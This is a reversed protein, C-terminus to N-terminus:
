LNVAIAWDALAAVPERAFRQKDGRVSQQGPNCSPRPQFGPSRRDGFPSAQAARRYRDCALEPDNQMAYPDIAAIKAPATVLGPFRGHLGRSVIMVSNANPSRHGALVLNPRSRM